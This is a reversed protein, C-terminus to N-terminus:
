HKTHKHVSFQNNIEQRREKFDDQYFFEKERLPSNIFDVGEDRISFIEEPGLDRKDFFFSPEPLLFSYLHHRAEFNFLQM